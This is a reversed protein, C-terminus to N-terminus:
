WTKSETSLDEKHFAKQLSELPPISVDPGTETNFGKAVGPMSDLYWYLPPIYSYPGTMKMGTPGSLPSEYKGASAISILEPATEKMTKLYLSEIHPPAILDSGYLFALFSSHHQFRKLVSKMSEMAIEEHKKDWIEYNEWASDCTWGALVLIGNEDCLDWLKDSGFNAEFRLANLNMQKLYAIDIWDKKESENLLMDPAWAAGRILINKGNVTFHRSKEADLYSGFQRIGFRIKGSEPLAGPLNM